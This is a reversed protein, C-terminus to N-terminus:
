MERFLFLVMLSAFSTSWLYPPAWFYTLESFALNM